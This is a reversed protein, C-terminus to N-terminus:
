DNEKGEVEGKGLRTQSPHKTRCGRGGESESKHKKRRSIIRRVANLGKIGPQARM